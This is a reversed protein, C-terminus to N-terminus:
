KGFHIFDLAKLSRNELDENDLSVICSEDIMQTDIFLM